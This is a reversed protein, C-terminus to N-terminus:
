KKTNAGAPATPAGTAAGEQKVPPKAPAAAAAAKAAPKAPVPAPQSSGGAAPKPQVNQPQSQATGVSGGTGSQIVGGTAASQAFCAASVLLSFAFVSYYIIKKM